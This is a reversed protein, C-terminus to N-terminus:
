KNQPTYIMLSEVYRTDYYQKQYSMAFGKQTLLRLLKQSFTEYVLTVGHKESLEIAEDILKELVEVNSNNIGYVSMVVSKVTSPCLIHVIGRVTKRHRFIENAKDLKKIKRAGKGKFKYEFTRPNVLSIATSYNEDVLLTDFESWEYCYYKLFAKIYDERADLSKCLNMFFPDKILKPTINEILKEVQEKNANKLIM